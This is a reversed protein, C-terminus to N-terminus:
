QEKQLALKTSLLSRIKELYARAKYDTANVRKSYWEFWNFPWAFCDPTVVYVKRESSTVNIFFIGLWIAWACSALIFPVLVRKNTSYDIREIKHPIIDSVLVSMTDKEQHIFFAQGKLWEAPSGYMEVERLFEEPKEQVQQLPISITEAKTSVVTLAIFLILLIPSSKLM